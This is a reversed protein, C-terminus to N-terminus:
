TSSNGGERLTGWSGGRGVLGGVSLVRCCSSLCGGCVDRKLGTLQGAGVTAQKTAGNSSLTQICRCQHQLQIEINVIKNYVWWLLLLESM